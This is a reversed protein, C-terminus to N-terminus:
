YLYALLWQCQFIGCFIGLPDAITFPVGLILVVLQFFFFFNGSRSELFLCVALSGQFTPPFHHVCLFIFCVCIWVASVLGGFLFLWSFFFFIKAKQADPDDGLGDERLDSPNTINVGILGLTAFIGPLWMQFAYTTGDHQNAVILGDIFWWWGVAFLAGSGVSCVFESLACSRDEMM